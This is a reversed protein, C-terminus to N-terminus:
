DHQLTDVVDDTPGPPGLHSVGGLIEMLNIRLTTFFNQIAHAGLIFKKLKYGRITSLVQQRQTLYNNEDLKAAVFHTPSFKQTIPNLTFSKSSSPAATTNQSTSSTYVMVPDSPDSLMHSFPCLLFQTQIFVTNFLRTHKYLTHILRYVNCLTFFILFITVFKHRSLMVFVWQRGSYELQNLLMYLDNYVIYNIGKCQLCLHNFLYFGQLLCNDCLLAQKFFAVHYVFLLTHKVVDQGLQLKSRRFGILICHIITLHEWRVFESSKKTM